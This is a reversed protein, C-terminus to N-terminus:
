QLRPSSMWPAGSPTQAATFRGTTQPKEKGSSSQTVGEASNMFDRGGVDAIVQFRIAARADPVIQFFRFTEVEVPADPQTRPEHMPPMPVRMLMRRLSALASAGVADNTFVCSRFVNLVGGDGTSTRPRADEWAGPAPRVECRLADSTGVALEGRAM